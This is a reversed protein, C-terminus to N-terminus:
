KVPNGDADLFQIEGWGLERLPAEIKSRDGVVVWVLQDPHVLKKGAHSLDNVTLGRVKGPYTKFYDDPLDFAVIEGLSGSVAGLTEWRGPLTLTRNQQAETLEDATAPRDGLIARLEKDLEIVSEKTKDTQVPAYVVFPGQGRAAIPVTNVGYSWHKNERLNLNV